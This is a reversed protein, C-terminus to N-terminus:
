LTYEINPSNYKFGENLYWSYKDSYTHEGCYFEASPGHLECIRPHDLSSAIAMPLSQNGIFLDSGAIAEALENFTSILFLKIKESKLKFTHYENPDSTIFFIDKDTQDILKGWNFLPNDRRGSHHILVKGASTPDPKRVRAYPYAEKNPFNYFSSLLDTWTTFRGLMSRWASMNIYGDIQQNSLIEYTNIYEQALIFDKSDEYTKQLSFHYGGCHPIGHSQDVIYFNATDNHKICINKIAYLEHILDGAHGGSIFNIM